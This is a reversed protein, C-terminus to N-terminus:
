FPMGIGFNYQIFNYRDPGNTVAYQRKFERSNFLERVVWQKSGKFQPDRVKLGADLRFVFYDLDFRLGAGAGIAMQGLFTNWNFEGGPNEIERFRWINGSDAFAAGKLKAGLFDNLLRFRYELNSEIKIEGLQDLNRLGLRLSEDLIERNYNGPGLTRAQWARIGNMGGGFFSKEFIVFDRNNGYPIVVGPNFRFVLQREGGLYKYWRFDTEMRAYQLYPVGFVMREGVNNRDFDFVNSLLSLTNGSMDLTGRFYSFDELRNLKLANYTYAYQSGLGFYARDNSRIYLLFGKESLEDYFGPSLKGLRFEAILPTITHLKYRTEYWNYAVSGIVYRNSYTNVQDFIQWNLSFTTYPMGSRGVLPVHFPVMLRPVTLTAGIQLDRNFVSGFLQNDRWADFLIGYKLKLDFREAGGFLNRNTFTNGINFGSRGTNFTYEGEM